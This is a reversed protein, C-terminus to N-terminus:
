AMAEWLKRWLDASYKYADIYAKTKAEFGCKRCVLAAYDPSKEIEHVGWENEIGLLPTPDVSAGNKRVEFHCHSGFSYGTNGEIGIVDGAHVRQGTNVLRREMHCLYVSTGGDADIRVYNGWEWTANSKDTIMASNGVVGDCPSVLTKDTGCLDVGKHNNLKGNLTRAGFRSTLTVKGSKYPLKLEQM